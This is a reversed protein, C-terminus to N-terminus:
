PNRLFNLRDKQWMLVALPLGLIVFVRGLLSSPWYSIFKRNETPMLWYFRSLRAAEFLFHIPCYWAYSIDDNLVRMKGYAAGTSNIGPKGPRSLQDLDGENDQCYIRLMDNAFRTKYKRGIASWVVDEPVLGPIQEPFPFEKLVDTRIFGWKEGSIRYRYNM